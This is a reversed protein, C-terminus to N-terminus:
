DNTKIPILNIFEINWLWCNLTIRKLNGHPQKQTDPIKCFLEDNKYIETEFGFKTKIRKAKVTHLM